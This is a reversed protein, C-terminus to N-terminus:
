FFLLTVYISRKKLNLGPLIGIVLMVQRVETQDSSIEFLSKMRTQFGLKISGMGLPLPNKSGAVIYHSVLRNGTPRLALYPHVM